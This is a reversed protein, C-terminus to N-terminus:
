PRLSGAGVLARHLMSSTHVDFIGTAYGVGGHNSLYTNFM